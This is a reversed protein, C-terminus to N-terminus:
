GKLANIEGRLVKVRGIIELLEERTKGKMNNKLDETEAEKRAILADNGFLARVYDAKKSKKPMEIKHEVALQKLTRLLVNAYTHKLEVSDPTPKDLIEFQKGFPKIYFGCGLMVRM